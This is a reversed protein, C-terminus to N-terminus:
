TARRAMVRQLRIRNYRQSLICPGNVLPAYAFTMLVGVPWPNWLFFLPAPAMTLWHGLEARRTEGVYRTLYADDTAALRRKNFGGRFVDGAEPLLRKWRKIRFRRVYLRGGDEVARERWLWNDAAFRDPSLRHVFYGVSAHILGWAVVDSAFTAPRSLHM